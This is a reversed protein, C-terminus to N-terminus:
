PSQGNTTYTHGLPSTWIYGTGDETRRYSWGRHRQRHHYRCLPALGELETRHTDQWPNTHDLDAEQAPMRCGPFVCTRRRARIHRRMAATARRSLTGTAVPQGNDTLIYEWGCDTHEGLVQRAVESVISGVGPIEAPTDGGLITDLPVMLTMKGAKRKGTLTPGTLLDVFVDARRQDSTRQDGPTKAARALENIKDRITAVKEPPLNLAHLNATGDPNSSVVLRRDEIAAQFRQTAEAPDAELRLKLLRARLQGATMRSATTLAESIVKDATKWPIGVASDVLVRARRVDIEGRCLAGMVQPFRRLGAALDVETDAAARTLRLATAVESSLAEPYGAAEVRDAVVGITRYMAAQFYSVVRAYAQVLAVVDYDEMGVPDLADCIVGLEVGSPIPPLQREWEYKAPVKTDFM